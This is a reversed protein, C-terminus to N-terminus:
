VKKQVKKGDLEHHQQAVVAEVSDENIFLVFGFGRSQQTNPDVKVVVDQVDGFNAFYAKLSETTTNKSLGSFITPRFYNEIQFEFIFKGGVFMKANNGVNGDDIMKGTKTTAAPKVEEPPNIQQEVAAGEVVPAEQGDVVM